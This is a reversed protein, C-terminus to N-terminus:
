AIEEVDKRNLLSSQRNISQVIGLAIFLTVLSSGGYSIFPLTLGTIPVLGLSMASHLFVQLIIIVSFGVVALRAFNDEANFTIIMMRWFLVAYLILVVSIMFVGFEEALAAFIFDTHAEPLFGLQSQTGQAIGKGWLGGSATATIAQLANYGAGHPDLEPNMFSVVRAKQYDEIMFAWAPMLILLGIICIVALHKFKIGSVLIMGLWIAALISFSGLDPQMLVLAAPILIYFGSIAIHRWRYLEVHRMSFYKALILVLIIKLIEVPEIHVPGLALWRTGGRISTGFFHVALLGLIGIFYLFLVPSFHVRFLRYDISSFVFFLAVGVLLWMIQKYFNSLEPQTTSFLSILGMVVLLVSASFLIWDHGRLIKKIKSNM